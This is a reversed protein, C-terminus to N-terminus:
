DRIELLLMLRLQISVELSYMAGQTRGETTEFLTMWGLLWNPSGCALYIYPYKKIELPLYKILQL